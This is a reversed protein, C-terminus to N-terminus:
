PEDNEPDGFKELEAANAIDNARRVEEDSLMQRVVAMPVADLAAKLGHRAAEVPDGADVTVRM